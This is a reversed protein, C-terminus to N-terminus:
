SNYEQARTDKDAVKPHASNTDQDYDENKGRPFSASHEYGEHYRSTGYEQVKQMIAEKADDSKVHKRVLTLIQDEIVHSGPNTVELYKHLRSM